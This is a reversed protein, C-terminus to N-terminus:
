SRKGKGEVAGHFIFGVGRGGAQRSQERGGRGGELLLQKAGDAVFGEPLRHSQAAAVVEALAADAAGPLVPLVRAGDALLGGGEVVEADVVREVVQHLHDESLFPPSQATRGGEAGQVVLFGIQEAQIVLLQRAEGALAGLLVFPVLHPRHLLRRHIEPHPLSTQPNIAQLSAASRKDPRLSSM